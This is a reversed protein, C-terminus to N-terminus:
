PRHSAEVLKQFPASLTLSLFDIAEASWNGPYKLRLPGERSNDGVAGIEAKEGMLGCMVRGLARADAQQTEATAPSCGECHAIKVLGKTTLLINASTISGHSLSHSALYCLGNLVQSVIAALQVEDPRVLVLDDLGIAAYESVVYSSDEHMFVEVPLLLNEHKLSRLIEIKGRRSLGSVSHMSFLRDTAPIKCVIAVQGGLELGFATKYHKWPSGDIVPAPQDSDQDAHNIPLNIRPIRTNRM